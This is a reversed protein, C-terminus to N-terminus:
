RYQREGTSRNAVRLQEALPRRLYLKWPAGTVDATEFGYSQPDALFSQFMEDSSIPLDRRTIIDDIVVDVQDQALLQEFSPNALLNHSAFNDGAHRPIGLMEIMRYHRAEPLRRLQHITNSVAMSSEWAILPYYGQSRQPTFVVFAAMVVGAVMAMGWDRFNPALNSANTRSQRWLSVAGIGLTLTLLWLPILYHHRPYIVVISPLASIMAAAVALLPIV